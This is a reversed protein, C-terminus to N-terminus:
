AVNAYNTYSSGASNGQIPLAAAGGPKMAAGTAYGGAAQGGVSMLQGFFQQQSRASSLDGAFQLTPDVRNGSFANLQRANINGRQASLSASNAINPQMSGFQQSNQAVGLFQGLTQQQATTMLNSTQQDFNNLAQIGASSTAYDGGLRQALSAELQKRQENRQNQIPGLAAASKGQMLDLAQHGAEILAPDSSDLIKQKRAIDQTNMSIAQQLQQMEMESPAAYQMAQARDSQQQDYQAQGAADAARAAANAGSIEPIVDTFLGVPSVARVPNFQGGKTSM